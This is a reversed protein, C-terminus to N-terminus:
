YLLQARKIEKIKLHLINWSPEEIRKTAKNMVVSISEDIRELEERSAYRHSIRNLM